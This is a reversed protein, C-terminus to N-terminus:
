IVDVRLELREIATLLLRITEPYLREYLYDLNRPAKRMERAEYMKGLHIIVKDIADTAAETSPLLKRVYPNTELYELIKQLDVQLTIINEQSLEQPLTGYRLHRRMKILMDQYHRLTSATRSLEGPDDHEIRTYLASDTM